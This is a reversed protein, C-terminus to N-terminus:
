FRVQQLTIRDITFIPVAPALRLGAATCDVHVHGPPTPLLGEELDIRDRGITRVRGQRIVREVTRLSEVERQSLIAGRYM